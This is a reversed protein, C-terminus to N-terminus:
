IYNFIYKDIDEENNPKIINKYLYWEEKSEQYSNPSVEDLPSLSEIELMDGDTFVENNCNMDPYIMDPNFSFRKIFLCSNIYYASWGETNYFGVKQSSKSNRDQQITIYKKGWYFRNDSMDTYSWLTISSSPLLNDMNHKRREPLPIIAMGGPKMVTLGWISFTLSHPNRNYIRHKIVAKPKNDAIDIELQKELGTTEEIETTIKISKENKIAVKVPKNDPYYTINKDEPAVWLRHGGYIRWKDGGTKGIMDEYEKLINEGDTTKLSIIRPGIDGTIILQIHNNSVSYCNKWGKYEIKDM